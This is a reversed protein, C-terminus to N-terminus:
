KTGVSEAPQVTTALESPKSEGDEKKVDEIQAQASGESDAATAAARAVEDQRRAEEAELIGMRVSEMDAGEPATTTYRVNPDFAGSATRGFGSIQSDDGTEKRLQIMAEWEAELRAIEAENLAREKELRTERGRKHCYWLVLLIVFMALSWLVNLGMFAPFRARLFTLVSRFMGAVAGPKGILDKLEPAKFGMKKAAGAAKGANSMNIGSAEAKAAATALLEPAITGKVRDPLTQVLKQLFSPLSNYCKQLQQDGNTLLSELDDYATPVGNILDKFVLNFKHLLDQTESSISFVRNNVAALNLSELIVTLDEEESKVEHKSLEPNAKEDQTKDNAMKPKRHLPTSPLVKVVNKASSKRRFLSWRSKKNEEKAKEKVDEVVEVAKGKGKDKKESVPESEQPAAAAAAPTEEKKELLDGKEEGPSMPPLPVEVAPTEPLATNTAEDYMVMQGQNGESEGAVPLNTVDVASGIGSAPRAPLAPAASLDEESPQSAIRRLFAEDEDSLVPTDSKPATAIRAKAKLYNFYSTAM